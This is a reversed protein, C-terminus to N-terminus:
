ATYRDGRRMMFISGVPIQTESLAGPALAAETIAGRREPKMLERGFASMSANLEVNYFHLWGPIKLSKAEGSVNRIVVSLNSVVSRDEPLYVPEISLAFGGASEGWVRSAPDIVRVPDDKMTLGMKAM